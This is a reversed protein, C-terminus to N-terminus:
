LSDKALSQGLGFGDSGPWHSRLRSSNHGNDRDLNADGTHRHSGRCSHGSQLVGPCSWLAHCLQTQPVNRLWCLGVNWRREDTSGCPDCLSNALCWGCFIQACRQGAALAGNYESGGFISSQQCLRAPRAVSSYIRNAHVVAESHGQGSIRTLNRYNKKGTYQQAVKIPFWTKRQGVSSASALARIDFGSGFDEHKSHFNQGFGVIDAECLQQKEDVDWVSVRCLSRDPDTKSALEAVNTVRVRVAVAGDKLCVAAALSTFPVTHPLDKIELAPCLPVPSHRDSDPVPDVKLDKEFRVIMRCGSLSYKARDQRRTGMMAGTLAVLESKKSYM